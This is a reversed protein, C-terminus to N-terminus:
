APRPDRVTARAVTRGLRAPNFVQSPALEHIMDTVIGPSEGDARIDAALKEGQRLADSIGQAPRPDIFRGADGVLVWSATV